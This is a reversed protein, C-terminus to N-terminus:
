FGDQVVLCVCTGGLLRGRVLRLMSWPLNHDHVQLTRVTKIMKSQTAYPQNCVRVLTPSEM